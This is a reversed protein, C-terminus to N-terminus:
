RDRTERARVDVQLSPWILHFVRASITKTCKDSTQPNIQLSFGVNGDGRQLTKKRNIIKKRRSTKNAFKTHQNRFTPHQRTEEEQLRRPDPPQQNKRAAQAAPLRVGAAAEIAASVRSPRGSQITLESTLPPLTPAMKFSVPPPFFRKQKLTRMRHLWRSLLVSHHSRVPCM